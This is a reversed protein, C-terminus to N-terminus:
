YNKGALISRMFRDPHAGSSTKIDTPGFMINPPFARRCQGPTIGTYKRFVHTFHSVSTFGCDDSVQALARDSYTLLEAARRIRIMNLTDLITADTDDHFAKCLYSKNYGLDEALTDLSLNEEFHEELYSIIRVSLPSFGTIDIYRSSKASKKRSEQTIIHLLADLYSATAEESAHGADEYENVIQSFLSEALPERSLIPADLNLREEFNHDPAFKIELYEFIEETKNQYSHKVDRPVLIIDGTRFTFNESGCSFSAEGKVAYLMHCFPHSHPRIGNEPLTYSKAVWLIHHREM